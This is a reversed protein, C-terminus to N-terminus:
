QFEFAAMHETGDTLKLSLVRCSGAWDPDTKWVYAYSGSQPDYTLGHHGASQAQEWNGWPEFQDCNLPRSAPSGGAIVNLGKYGGLSFKLPVASGAEVKNLTPPDTQGSAL